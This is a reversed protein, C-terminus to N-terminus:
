EKEYLWCKAYFGENLHMIPPDKICKEFIFPCRDAFRCGKPPDLLSPPSGSIFGLKKDTRLTPVSEMLKQSYPHLPNKYFTEADSFEVVQGAYMVAVKDALESSLSVDHTIFIMSIKLERKINKLLNMIN